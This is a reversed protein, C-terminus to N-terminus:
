EGAILLNDSFYSEGDLWSQGLQFGTRRALNALGESDYKYSDETHIREGETFRVELGLDGIFVTQEKLSELHMEVRGLDEDYFAVHKFSSIDFDANLERNIHNLVNLNFAATVGLSDDYAPELIDRSKKLDTGLLLADGASLIRRTDRLLDEAVEPPHNGISTGLFLVLTRKAPDLTVDKIRSLYDGEYGEISLDPYEKLLKEASSRLGSESIDLPIYKLDKQRRFVADILYRTKAASGSGLEVLVIEGELCNVIEAAHARLIEHEKRTPYYEPLLTLADFLASGLEDYFYKPPLSKTAASLGRRVDEALSNLSRDRDEKHITLRKHDM